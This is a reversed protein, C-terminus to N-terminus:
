LGQKVYTTLDEALMKLYERTFDKPDVNPNTNLFDLAIKLSSQRIIMTQVDIGIGDLRAGGSRDIKHVTGYSGFDNTGKIEYEVEDGPKFANDPMKHNAALTTDDEFTYIFKYLMGHKSDWTGNGACDKVKSVAM